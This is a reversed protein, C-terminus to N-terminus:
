MTQKFLIAVDHGIVAEASRRGAIPLRAGVTAVPCWIPGGRGGGVTHCHQTVANYIMM